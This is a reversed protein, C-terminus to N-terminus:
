QQVHVRDATELCCLLKCIRKFPIGTIEKRNINFKTNCIECKYKTKIDGVRFKIWKLLCKRHVFKISGNCKCPTILKNKPKYGELCVRCLAMVQNLNIIALPVIKTTKRYYKREKNM